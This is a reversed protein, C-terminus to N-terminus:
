GKISLNKIINLLYDRAIKSIAGTIDKTNFGSAAITESEEKLIDVMVAKIYDSMGRIHILGGNLTNFTEQVMQSLRWEPTLSVALEQINNIREVDVAVLTKVRTASHKVGKVKFWYQSSNYGVTVCRWVIGEGIIPGREATAGLQKAVPCVNEVELTLEGLQNQSEHPKSFDIHIRYSPFQDTHYLNITSPDFDLEDFMGHIEDSTAWYRKESTVLAAAFVVFTKPLQSMGVGSQFSGCWEGFIVFKDDTSEAVSGLLHARVAAMLSVFAAKNAEVYMAFGANDDGITLFRQRSQLWMESGDWNCAIAANTGHLKVTGVFQLTPQPLTLDYVPEGAENLGTFTSAHAVNHVVSRFQNISPFKILTPMIVAWYIYHDLQIAM